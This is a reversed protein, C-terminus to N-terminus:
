EQTMEAANRAQIIASALAFEEELANYEAVFAPDKLWQKAAEEVPIFKQNM